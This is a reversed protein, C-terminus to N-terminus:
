ISQYIEGYGLEDMPTFDKDKCDAPTCILYYLKSNQSIICLVQKNLVLSICYLSRYPGKNNNDVNSKELTTSDYNDKSVTIIQLVANKSLSVKLMTVLAQNDGIKILTGRVFDYTLLAPNNYKTYSSSTFNSKQLSGVVRFETSSVKEYMPSALFYNGVQIFCHDSRSKSYGWVGEQFIKHKTTSIQYEGNVKNIPYIGDYTVAITQDYDNTKLKYLSPAWNNDQNLLSFSKPFDLTESHSLIIELALLCLILHIKYNSM